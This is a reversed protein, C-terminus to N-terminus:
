YGACILMERCISVLKSSVRLVTDAVIDFTMDDDSRAISFQICSVCPQPTTETILAISTNSTSM